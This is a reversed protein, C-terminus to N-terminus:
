DSCTTNKQGNGVEQYCGFLRIAASCANHILPNHETNAALCIGQCESSSKCANGADTTEIHCYFDGGGFQLWHGGKAKCDDASKPLQRLHQTGADPEILFLVALVGGVGLFSTMFILSTSLGKV